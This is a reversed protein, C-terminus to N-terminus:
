PTSFQVVVAVDPHTCPEDGACAAPTRAVSFTVVATEDDTTLAPDVIEWGDADDITVGEAAFGEPVHLTLRNEFPAFETGSSGEMVVTYTAEAADWALSRVVGYGGMLHRNTGLLQPRNLAPRLAVIRPTRAPVDVELVTEVEGLYEQTWFEFALYTASPDLDAEVMPVSLVRANDSLFTPPIKTLDRNIGWNLLGIVHYPEDFDDVPVSWIEPFERRFMDLPRGPLDSAPMIRRYSDVAEPSLDVIIDGIKVLGAQLSVSSLFTRSENLTLPPIRDERHARFFILDPHNIWVRTNLYYRRASDRYMPKLGQNQVPALPGYPDDSEGEFAPMTDLTLRCSDILGYNPGNVAVNLFFVDPGLAERYVEVGTKYVEMRSMNPEYWDETFAIRYAFDLKLWQIGWDKLREIMETLYTQVAPNTVDLLPEDNEILGGLLDQAIWDPHNRYVESEEDAHFGQVWLGTQFGLSNARHMLWEIGNMDGHDPFRDTRVFWDGRATQWGDDIQFYNMGWMRLERDAFDMNALIIEEDINTGYGGSSGGGSWSNWGVPIGIDPHRELWTQIDQWAKIRDAYTELAAFPDNEGVDLVMVDSTLSEGPGITKAPEYECDAHIEQGRESGGIPGVFVVPQSPDFTLFGLHLSTQEAQNYVLASWDSVVLDRGTYMPVSFEIYNFAGNTLVRLDDKKGVLAQGRVPDTRLPYIAGVHVARDALNFVEVTSLIPSQGDLVIFTQWLLPHDPDLGRRVHVALGSGLPTEVSEAHWASQYPDSSRWVHVPLIVGSQARAEANQIILTGYENFVNYTGAVLDYRLSVYKNRLVLETGDQYAEADEGAPGPPEPTSDDDDDDGPSADIDLDNEDDGCGLALAWIAAIALVLALECLSRTRTM